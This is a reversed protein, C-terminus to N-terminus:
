ASVQERNPLQDLDVNALAARLASTDPAAGALGVAADLADELDPGDYEAGETWSVQWRAEGANALALRATISLATRVPRRAIDVRAREGANAGGPSADTLETIKGQDLADLAARLTPPGATAAGAASLFATADERLREGAAITMLQSWDVRQKSKADDVLGSLLAADLTVNPEHLLDLARGDGFTRAPAADLAEIAVVRAVTPPHSDFLSIEMDPPNERLQALEVARAAHMTTFGEVMAAPLYGARWGVTLYGRLYLSWAADLVPLEQLAAAAVTSGAVRAGAEDAALEQRRCVAQSVRLYLMAYASFVEALARHLRSDTRLSAKARAMMRLGRYTLPALRTDKNSYHALEHTLIVALEAQSLTALLPVGIYLRRTSAVLGFARTNEVVAANVEAILRIEDPARTGAFEALDHVLAWLEPQEQPTVAIGAGDGREASREVVFLARLLVLVTPVVVIAIKIGLPGSVRFVLLDVLVLAVVCALLLVPFAVLLVVACVAREASSRVVLLIWNTPAWSGGM